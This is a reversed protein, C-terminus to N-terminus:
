DEDEEQEVKVLDKTELGNKGKTIFWTDDDVPVEGKKEPDELRILEVVHLTRDRVGVVARLRRAAGKQEDKGTEPNKETKMGEIIVVDPPDQDDMVAAEPIVRAVRAPTTLVEVRQVTNARLKLEPNPFRIKVAFNGTDPQAQVAIFVVKGGRMPTGKDAVLRAEQGLSLVRATAPPVFCLMDIEDLDVVDAVTAGVALTQGPVVQLAGLRGAIPARLTFFQLQEDMAKLDAEGSKLKDGAGQQKSKADELAVQARELEVRSVLPIQAGSSGNRGLEQLRNVEIEALRVAYEAQKQDQLLVKQAAAVRDRNARTIRDDLQLVPQGTKVHEGEVVGKAKGDALAWLVRGEVPATIRAAHNPLPQTTGFLETWGEISVERPHEAQVPAVPPPEAEEAPGKCGALLGVAPLVFALSTVLRLRVPLPTM